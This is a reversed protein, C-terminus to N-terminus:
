IRKNQVPAANADTRGSLPIPRILGAHGVEIQGALFTDPGIGNAVIEIEHAGAQVQAPQIQLGSVNTKLQCDLPVAIEFKWSNRARPAFAGLDLSAPLKWEGDRNMGVVRGRVGVDRLTPPAGEVQLAVGNEDGTAEIQIGHLTVGASKVTVVPGTQSWIVAGEGEITLARNVIIPGRYEGRPLRITANAPANDLTKQLEGLPAAPIITPTAVNVPVSSIAPQSVPPSPPAPPESTAPTRSTAPTQSTAPTRSTAPTAPSAAVTGTDGEVQGGFHKLLAGLDGAFGQGSAWTRWVGVKRYIEGLMLAGEQAFDAGSFQYRMLTQPNLLGAESLTMESAGLQKMTGAGDISITFVLRTIQPPLADLDFAFLASKDSLESLQIADDPAFKQNFFVMFRDDSLTGNADLGFCVFDFVPLASQVRVKITFQRTRDSLDSLKARQGRIFDQMPFPLPLPPRLPPRPRLYDAFEDLLDRM